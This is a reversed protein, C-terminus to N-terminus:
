FDFGGKAGSGKPKRKGASKKDTAAEEEGDGEDGEDADETEDTDDEDDFDSEDARYGEEEDFADGGYAANKELLQVANLYLSIGGKGQVPENFPRTGFAVKIVDGGFIKVSKPLPKRAADRRDPKNKSKFKVLWFGADGEYDSDDGDKIPDFVELKKKGWAAKQKEGAEKALSRLHEVFNDNAEVGKELKLTVKYKNDAYKGKTHPTDINALAAIGKPTVQKVKKSAEKAM